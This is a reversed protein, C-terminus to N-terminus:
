QERGPLERGGESGGKSSARSGAAVDEESREAQQGTPSDVETWGPEKGLLRKLFSRMPENVVWRRRQRVIRGRHPDDAFLEIGVRDGPSISSYLRSRKASVYAEIQSGYELQVGICPGPLVELVTGTARVRKGSRERKEASM